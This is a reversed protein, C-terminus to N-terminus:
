RALTMAWVIKAGSRKLVRCAEKLTAGTTWVDDFLLVHAPLKQTGLSFIGQANKIRDNRKEIEAQPTRQITRALLSHTLPIKLRDTIYVGLREAQNFGRWRLRKEHLPIPYLSANRNYLLTSHYMAQPIEAVLFRAVDTVFRYKLLKVAKKVVGNYRFATILGDLGYKKQCIQHTKGDIAPKDCEPCLQDRVILTKRCTQCIYLGVRGCGVCRRPYILNLLFELM